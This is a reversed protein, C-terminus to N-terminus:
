FFLFIKLFETNVTNFNQGHKLASKGKSNRQNLYTCHVQIASRERWEIQWDNGTTRKIRWAQLMTAERSRKRGKILQNVQSLNKNQERSRWQLAPSTRPVWPPDRIFLVIAGITSIYADSERRKTLYIIFSLGALLGVLLCSRPNM